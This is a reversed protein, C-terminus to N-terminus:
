GMKVHQVFFNRFEDERHSVYLLTSIKEKALEELFDLVASRNQEDMGQTPEDLILLKPLKILARAILVLRQNAYGLERFPTEAMKLMGLRELWEMASVEQQRTFSKYLGISDFLGSLICHLTTGPVYYNRHLDASVIGMSKKLEWISEGTGRKIGFIRLDNSYCAPHDGTIMQLLTSKGCGNPGSVFTHDGSHIMLTLDQFIKQGGYGASGKHLFVLEKQKKNESPLGGKENLGAVSAQFDPSEKHLPNELSDKIDKVRGQITMCGKEMVGAHTCFCPMDGVNNIFIILLINQQLLHALAKDLETMSKTDLGEYPSQIFLCSRGKTIQSLLILKRSQGTSLQRYGKSLCSEMDLATVLEAHNEIDKLFKKAPTGPDIKEMFDTDDRSLEAEYLEQQKKFSIIGSNEPLELCDAQISLDQGTMLKFLEEIGSRNSGVICWAQGSSAEFRDIYINGRANIIKM